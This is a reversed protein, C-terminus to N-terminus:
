RTDCFQLASALHEPDALYTLYGRPLIRRTAVFDVMRRALWLSVADAWAGGVIPHLSRYAELLARGRDDAVTGDSAVCWHVFADVVDELPEGPHLLGWDLVSRIQKDTDLLVAAPQIDGHVWGGAGGNGAGGSHGPRPTRHPLAAGIRQLRSDLARVQGEDIALKRSRETDHRWSHMAVQYEVAPEPPRPRAPWPLLEVLLRHMWALRLGLLSLDHLSWEDPLLYQGAPSASVMLHTGQPGPVAYM